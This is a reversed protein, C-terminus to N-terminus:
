ASVATKVKEVALAYRSQIPQAIEGLLKMYNEGFKSAEGVFADLSSKALESQLQFFETPSKLGAFQKATANAKEISTRGYDTAYKAIEEAGKAAVRGSAVVAELNGKSFEVLEEVNKSGKEMVSKVRATADATFNQVSNEIKTFTETVKAKGETILPASVPTARKLPPVAATPAKPKPKTVPKAAVAPKPM